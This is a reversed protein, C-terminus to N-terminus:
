YVTVRQNERHLYINLGTLLLIFATLFPPKTGLPLIQAPVDPHLHVYIAVLMIVAIMSNALYFAKESVVPPLTRGAIFLFLLTLGTFIEGLQGAWKSLIPFPLGSLAIQKAYMLIFPEFFKATGGLLIFAGLFGTLLREANQM